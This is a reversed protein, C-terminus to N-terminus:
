SILYHVEDAPSDSSPRPQESAAPVLENVAKDANQGPENDHHGNTSSNRRAILDHTSAVSDHLGSQRQGDDTLVADQGVCVM